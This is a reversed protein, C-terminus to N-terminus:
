KTQIHIQVLQGAQLNETTVTKSFVTTGTEYHEQSSHILTYGCLFSPSCSLSEGTNVM